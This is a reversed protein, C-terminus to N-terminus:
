IEEVYTKIAFNNAPNGINNKKNNKQGHQYCHSKSSIIFFILLSPVAVMKSDFCM